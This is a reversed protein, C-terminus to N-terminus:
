VGSLLPDALFYVENLKEVFGYDILENLCLHLQGDAIEAGDKAFSQKLVAWTNKGRAVYRLLRLYSSKSKRKALFNELEKQVIIKGEQHAKDIAETHSFDKSRLWGYQTAWGIIGDFNTIVDKIEQFVVKRGIQQFGEDMFRSIAEEKMRGVAIELHARGFLPAEYEKKGLFTDFVGIESGTLALKIQRHRDFLSALFYDFKIAKLLQVEDFALVLTEKKKKLQMDLQSFFSSWNQEKSFFLEFSFSGYGVGVGTIKEIIRKGLNGTKERIEKLLFVMFEKKDYFPSQRVDILISPKKSEVLAVNLLSTKGTRRLGKIVVMRVSPDRLYEGLLALHYDM